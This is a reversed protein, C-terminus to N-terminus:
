APLSNAAQPRRRRVARLLAPLRIPPSASVPLFTGAVRRVDPMALSTQAMLAGALLDALAPEEGVDLGELWDALFAQSVVPLPTGCCGVAEEVEGTELLERLPGALAFLEATGRRLLAAFAAGRALCGRAEIMACLAPPADPDSDLWAQAAEVAVERSPESALFPEWSRGGQSRSPNDRLAAVAELRAQVPLGNELGFAYLDRLADRIAEGVLMDQFGPWAQLRRSLLPQALIRSFTAPEARFMPQWTTHARPM